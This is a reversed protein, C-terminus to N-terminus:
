ALGRSMLVQVESAVKERDALPSPTAQLPNTPDVPPAEIVIQATATYLPQIRFILAALGSFVIVSVVFMLWRRSWLRRFLQLPNLGDQAQPRYVATSSGYAM